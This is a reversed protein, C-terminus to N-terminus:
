RYLIANQELGLKKSSPFKVLNHWIINPSRRFHAEFPSYNLSQQIVTRLCKIIKLLAIELSPKPKPKEKPMIMLREEIIRILREVLGTARHDGM